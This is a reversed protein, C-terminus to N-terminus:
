FQPVSERAKKERAAKLQAEYELAAPLELRVQQGRLSLIAGDARQWMKQGMMGGAVAQTVSNATTDSNKYSIPEWPIGATLNAAMIAQLEYNQIGPTVGAMIVKQYEIRVAPGDLQLFAARIKWGQYEYTHHVAGEVLPFSKDTVKTAPSDTPSGYRDAFQIPTEGLRAETSAALSVFALLSLIRMASSSCVTNRAAFDATARQEALSFPSRASESLCGHAQSTTFPYLSMSFRLQRVFCRPEHAAKDCVVVRCHRLRVAWPIDWSMSTSDRLFHPSLAGGLLVGQRQIIRSEFTESASCWIHRDDPVLRRAESILTLLDSPRDNM